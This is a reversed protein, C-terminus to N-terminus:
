REFYVTTTGHDQDIHFAAKEVNIYVEGTEPNLGHAQVLHDWFLKYLDATVKRTLEPHHVAVGWECDPIGCRVRRVQNM